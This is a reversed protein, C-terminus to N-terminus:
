FPTVVPQQPLCHLRWRQLYEFVMQVHDRAAPEQQGQKLLLTPCLSWQLDRGVELM